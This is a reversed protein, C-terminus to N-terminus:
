KGWISKLWEQFEEITSVSRAKRSCEKLIEADDIDQLADRLEDPIEAEIDSLMEIIISITVNLGEKLGEKLGEERGEKREDQLLEKWLMYKAEM